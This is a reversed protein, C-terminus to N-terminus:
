RWRKPAVWPVPGTAKVKAIDERLKAAEEELGEARKEVEAIASEADFHCLDVDKQSRYNTEECRDPFYVVKESKEVPVEVLRAPSDLYNKREVFVYVKAPQVGKSKAM